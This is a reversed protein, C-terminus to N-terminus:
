IRRGGLDVSDEEDAADSTYLLCSEYVIPITCLEPLLQWYRHVEPDVQAETRMASSTWHRQLFREPQASVRHLSDRCYGKAHMMTYLERLTALLEEQKGPRAELIAMSLIEQAMTNDGRLGSNQNPKHAQRKEKEFASFKRGRYDAAHLQHRRFQHNDRRGTRVRRRWLASGPANAGSRCIRGDGRSLSKWLLVVAGRGM